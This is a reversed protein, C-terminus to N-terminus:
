RERGGARAGSSGASAPVDRADAHPTSNSRLVLFLAVVACANVLALSVLLWAHSHILGVIQARGADVAQILATQTDESTCTACAINPAKEAYTVYAPALAFAVLLANAALALALLLWRTM